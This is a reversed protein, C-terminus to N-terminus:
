GSVSHCNPNVLEEVVGDLVRIMLGELHKAIEVESKQVRKGRVQWHQGRRLTQRM